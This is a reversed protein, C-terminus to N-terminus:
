ELGCRPCTFEWPETNDREGNGISRYALTLAGCDLIPCSTCGAIVGERQEGDDAMAHRRGGLLSGVGRM